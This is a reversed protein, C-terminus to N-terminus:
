QQQRPQHEEEQLGVKNGAPLGGDIAVALPLAVVLRDAPLFRLRARPPTGTRLVFHIDFIAIGLSIAFGVINFVGIGTFGM